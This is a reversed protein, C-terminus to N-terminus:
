NENIKYNQSSVFKDHYPLIENKNRAVIHGYLVTHMSVYKRGIDMHMPFMPMHFSIITFIDGKSFSWKKCDPLVFRDYPQNDIIEFRLKNNIKCILNKNLSKQMDYITIGNEQPLFIDYEHQRPYKDLGLSSSTGPIIWIDQTFQHHTHYYILAFKGNQTFEKQEWIVSQENIPIHYEDVFHKKEANFHGATITTLQAVEYKPKKLTYRFAYEIWFTLQRSNVKRVDNFEGLICLPENIKM